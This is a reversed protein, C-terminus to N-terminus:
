DDDDDGEGSGGGTIDVGIPCIPCASDCFLVCGTGCGACGATATPSPPKGSTWKTTKSNLKTDHTTDTTSPYVVPTVTTTVPPLITGSIVTTSGGLTETVAPEVYTYDGWVVVNSTETATTTAASVVTTGGITPTWTIAFPSPEVSSTLWITGTTSGNPLNVGWVPIATTSVPPVSIVTPFWYSVHSTVATLDGGSSASTTETVVTTYTLTTTWPPLTITTTSSLPQPPWILSCGPVATVSPSDEDWISPDIYVECSSGESASTSGNSTLLDIAWDAIGLFNYGEYLEARSAKIDDDMYGAWQTDNWVMINSNSDEDIYTYVEEEEAIGALEANSIYGATDTCAGPVAGSDPGTFTCDPGYCDAETMQFSRAYSAVGVAVMNSPVGAKTIMSLASVTETLNVHSRLCGGQPCGPDAYTNNWDWQGHLDYAMLVIYDVVESIAMIPIGKLYWFSSPATTSITKDPADIAMQMQLELLFLFFNTGDDTSDAPIDPIDPEAPYEWDWDVGDLDYTTLLDITNTILTARNTSDSVASRFIDYTDADTSFDWGGVTIIRKVGDLEVFDNWQDELSSINYSLDANLTAFSMHIHTYLSTDIDAIMTRMCAREVDYGEFYGIKFVESPADSQVIETGCNSICGNTNNAATGPNGTTSETPTCFEATIGCQGWIDCCANLPCENLTSLNTGYPVSVTGNVQPGCVANAIVAPMPPYGSSLCMYEGVLLDGCGLWGWTENNYSEIEATTLTYTAALVDCSDGTQILYSYCYGDADPSPAYDPASGETCCIYEGVTLNSCLTSSPNYTSLETATIGCETALTTCTDGSVVQVATCTTRQRAWLSTTNTRAHSVTPISYTLNQWVTSDDLSTICSSNRWTQVATQAASLDGSLSIIVGFAYRASHQSSCLQVVLTETVGNDQIEEILSELIPALLNQSHLSSGMYLGVATQGALAFNITENCAGSPNLTEYALLQTLAAIADTDSSAASAATDRSIQLASVVSTMNTPMQCSTSGTQAATDAVLDATCGRLGVRSQSQNVTTYLSFQLLMTEDCLSLRHVGPYVPWASPDLGLDTCSGPCASRLFEWSRSPTFNGAVVAAKLTELDVTAKPESASRTSIPNASLFASLASQADVSDAGAGPGMMALGAMFAQTMRPLKM